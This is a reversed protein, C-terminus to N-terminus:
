IESFAISNQVLRFFVKFTHEAGPVKRIRRDVLATMKAKFVDFKMGQFVQLVEKEDSAAQLQSSPASRILWPPTTVETKPPSQLASSARLDSSNKTTESM